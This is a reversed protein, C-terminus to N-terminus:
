VSRRGAAVHFNDLLKYWLNAYFRKRLIKRYWPLICWENVVIVGANEEILFGIPKESPIATLERKNDMPLDGKM